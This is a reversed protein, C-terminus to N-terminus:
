EEDEDSEEEDDGHYFYWDSDEDEEADGWSETDEEVSYQYKSRSDDENKEDFLEPRNHLTDIVQKMLQDLFDEYESDSFNGYYDKRYDDFKDVIIDNEILYEYSSNVTEIGYDFGIQDGDNNWRYVIRNISRVIEGGVTDAAGSAPVFEDFLAELVDVNSDETEIIELAKKSRGFMEEDELRDERYRKM